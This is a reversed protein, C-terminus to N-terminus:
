SPMLSFGYTDLINGLLGPDLDILRCPTGARMADAARDFLAACQRSPDHRAPYLLGDPQDPHAWIALAWTRAIRHDGACLRADAGIRRLGPGSLDVLRLPRAVSIESVCRTMLAAMGVGRVDTGAKSGLRGFTEVFSCHIDSGAYLIGYEGNPARCRTEGSRAFYLAGHRCAHIRQWSRDTHLLPLRRSAFGPPPPFLPGPEDSPAAPEPV